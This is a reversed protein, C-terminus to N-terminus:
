ERVEITLIGNNNLITADGDPLEIERQTTTTPTDVVVIATNDVIDVTVEDDTPGGDIAVVTTDPYDYQRAILETDHELRDLLTM